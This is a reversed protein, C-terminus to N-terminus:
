LSNRLSAPRSSRVYFYIFALSSLIFNWLTYAHTPSFAVCLARNHFFFFFFSLFSFQSFKIISETALTHRSFFRDIDRLDFTIPLPLVFHSSANNAYWRTSSLSSARASCHSWAHYYMTGTTHTRKSCVLALFLSLSFNQAFSQIIVWPHRLFFFCFANYILREETPSLPAISDVNNREYNFFCSPM